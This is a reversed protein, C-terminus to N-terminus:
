ICVKLFAKGLQTLYAKCNHIEYGQNSAQIKLDSSIQQNNKETSEDINHNKNCDYDYDEVLSFLPQDKTLTYSEINIIGLRKLNELSLAIQEIGENNTLNCDIIPYEEDNKVATLFNVNLGSDNIFTLVRADIPSLQKIIGIFGPHVYASKKNDFSSAVLKAFLERIEKENLYFLSENLAPLVISINPERLENSDINNINESISDLYQREYIEDDHKAKIKLHRYAPILEKVSNFAEIVLTIAATTTTIDFSM